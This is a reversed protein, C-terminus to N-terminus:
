LCDAPSLVGKVVHTYIETTTRDSHGLLEQITQIDYGSELLHTAFSHYLCSHCVSQGLFGGRSYRREIIKRLQCVIREHVREVTIRVRCFVTGVVHRSLDERAMIDGDVRSWDFVWLIYRVAFVKKESSPKASLM